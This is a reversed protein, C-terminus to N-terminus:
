PTNESHSPHERHKIRRFLFYIQESVGGPKGKMLIPRTLTAQLSKRCQTIYLKCERGANHRELRYNYEMLIKCYM